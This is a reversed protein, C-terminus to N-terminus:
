FIINLKDKDNELEVLYNNNEITPIIRIESNKELENLRELAVAVDEPTYENYEINKNGYVVDINTNDYAGRYSAVTVDVLNDVENITRTYDGGENKVWVDGNKPVSFQFSSEYYDGRKIMQLVDNGRATDPLSTEYILGKDDKSLKLTGSATRALLERFDHNVSLIVDNAKPNALIKDFANPNINEHFTRMEGKDRVYETIIKSNQNFVAGYGRINRSNTDNNIPKARYEESNDPSFSYRRETKSM